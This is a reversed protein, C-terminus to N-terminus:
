HVGRVFWSVVGTTLTGTATYAKVTMQTNDILLYDAYKAATGNQVTLQVTQVDAFNRNFTVLAGASADTITVVGQDSVQELSLIYSISSVKALGHRSADTAVSVEVRLYRTNGPIVVKPFPGNDFWADGALEKTLIHVTTTVSAAVERVSPTISIAVARLPAGFDYEWVFLAPTTCAPQIYLPYGADIQAQASGWSRSAYHTEWTEGRCMPGLWEGESLVADTWTGLPIIDTVQDLIVYNDPARMTLDLTSIGSANGAIDVARVYFRWHGPRSEEYMLFEGKFRGLLEGALPDLRPFPQPNARTM